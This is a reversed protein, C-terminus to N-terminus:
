WPWLVQEGVGFTPASLSAARSRAVYPLKETPMERGHESPPWLSCLSPRARSQITLERTGPWFARAVANRVQNSAGPASPCGAAIARRRPTMYMPQFSWKQADYRGSAPQVSRLPHEVSGFFRAPPKSVSQWRLWTCRDRDHSPAIAIVDKQVPTASAGGHWLSPPSQPPQPPQVAGPDEGAPSPISRTGTVGTRTSSVRM